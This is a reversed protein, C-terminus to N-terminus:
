KLFFNLIGFFLYHLTAASKSIVLLTYLSRFLQDLFCVLFFWGNVWLRLRLRLWYLRCRWFAISLTPITLFYFLRLNVHLRCGCRLWLRLWWSGLGLWSFNLNIDFRRSLVWIFVKHIIFNVLHIISGSFFASFVLCSIISNIFTTFLFFLLYNSWSITDSFQKNVRILFFDNILLCGLDLILVDNIPSIIGIEERSEPCSSEPFVVVLNNEDENKTKNNKSSTCEKHAQTSFVVNSYCYEDGEQM